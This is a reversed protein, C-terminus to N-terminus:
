GGEVDVTEPDALVGNAIEVVDDFTGAEALFGNPIDTKEPPDEAM